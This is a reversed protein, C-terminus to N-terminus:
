DKPGPDLTNQYSVHKQAWLDKSTDTIFDVRSSKALRDLVM